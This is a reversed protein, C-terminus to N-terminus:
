RDQMARGLGQGRGPHQGVPAAPQGPRGSAGPVVRDFNRCCQRDPWRLAWALTPPAAPSTARSSSRRRRWRDTPSGRCRRGSVVADGGALQCRRHDLRRGAVSRASARLIRSGERDTTGSDTVVAQAMPGNRVARVEREDGDVMPAIEALTGRSPRLPGGGGASWPASKHSAAAALRPPAARGAM